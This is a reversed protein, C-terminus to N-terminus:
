RIINIKAKARLKEFYDQMVKQQESEYLSNMIQEQIQEFSPTYEGIKNEVLFMDFGGQRALIQTYQGVQTNAIIAALRPDIRSYDFSIKQAEVGKLTKKSSQQDQLQKESNARFITVEANQFVSFQHKNAEYYARAQEPTLNKGVESSIRKYLKEQLLKKEIDNKFDSYSIGEAALSNLFQSNTMKNQAIIADIREKIEFASAGISLNKIEAQELRDRILLNLAQREDTNFQEKIKYVEFLTIPENEVIAAIGNVMQANLCIGCVLSAFIARKFM